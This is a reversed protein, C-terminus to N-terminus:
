EREVSNYSFSFYPHFPPLTSQIQGDILSHHATTPFLEKDIPIVAKPNHYLSTGEAWTESGNEDVEYMFPEPVSANPDHKHCTGVRVITVKKSGFGAEKGIRNFKALTATSSFIVGSINEAEPQFFFGPSIKAGSEKTYDLIKTPNIVLTGDSAYYFNHKYGYLMDIIAPFSWTMSLDDHFDAIALIIPKGKVHPLNWYKKQLKTFLASGFRLPMDNSNEKRTEEISKVNAQSTMPPKDKKRDVIVAEIAIEHEGKRVMFDPRDFDRLVEFREEALFAFLYIEWLRSDFGNLSQFQEIFNGDIDTYFKEIELMLEKAARHSVDGKLIKFYPHQKQESIVESFLNIGKKSDGQEVNTIGKNTLWRIRSILWDRATDLLEISTNTEFARYRNNEDRALIVVNFDTDTKDFLVVGLLTEDDNSFYELEQAFFHMWPTRTFMLYAHFRNRNMSKVNILRDSM